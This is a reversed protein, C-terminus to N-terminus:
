LSSQEEGYYTSWPLARLAVNSSHLEAALRELLDTPADVKDHKCLEIILVRPDIRYQKAVKLVAPMYSSHFQAQGAAIDLTCLGRREILPRILTEGLHMVEIPDVDIEYNSRVLASLYQETPTNGSSRGFGQLSADVMAVGEEACILSNAVSLGLNNHGHFGIALEPSLSRTAQLYARVEGPLMGGASDVLYVMDVGFDNSIAAMRAFEEPSLAYSKMFNAYVEMGLERALAVFPRSTNVETVNTGIRVFDMGHDAALRLHDLQAIGPICFMGWKGSHVAQAAAQMYERDTAAAINRGLESAGLGVGHGVEIYPFGVDDLARAINATDASTFQFDIAYSGDRLTCDLIKPAKM